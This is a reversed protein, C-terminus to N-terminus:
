KILYPKCHTDACPDCIFGTWMERQTGAPVALYDHGTQPGYEDDFHATDECQCADALNM